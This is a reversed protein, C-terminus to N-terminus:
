RRLIIDIKKKRIIPLIDRGLYINEKLYTMLQKLSQFLSLSIYVFDIDPIQKRDNLKEYVLLIGHYLKEGERGSQAQYLLEVKWPLNLIMENIDFSTHYDCIIYSKM